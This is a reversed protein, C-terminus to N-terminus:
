QIEEDDMDGWDVAEDEEAGWSQQGGRAARILELLVTPDIEGEADDDSLDGLEANDLEGGEVLNGQLTDEDEESEIYDGLAALGNVPADKRDEDGEEDESGYGGLLGAIAARGAKPNM